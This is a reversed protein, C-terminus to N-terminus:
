DRVIMSAGATAAKAMCSLCIGSDKLVAASPAAAATAMPAISADAHATPGSTTKEAHSVLVQSSILTAGCATRDGERAPAQGLSNMDGAGSIIPYTGKCKPCTTLDGVRAVAKGYLLFSQDGTIVTGGHSTKDGVVIFSRSM